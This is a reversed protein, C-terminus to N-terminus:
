AVFRTQMTCFTNKVQIFANEFHQLLRHIRKVLELFIKELSIFSDEFQNNIDCVHVIKLQPIVGKKKLKM